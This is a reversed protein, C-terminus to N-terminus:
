VTPACNFCVKQKKDTFEPRGLSNLDVRTICSECFVHGCLRCHNRKRFVKNFPRQCNHCASASKNPVWFQMETQGFMEEDDLFASGGFVESQVSVTDSSLHGSVKKVKAVTGMGSPIRESEEEEEIDRTFATKDYRLYLSHWVGIVKLSCVPLVPRSTECYEKNLGSSNEVLADLFAWISVSSEKLRNEIRERECNFYFTGFWGSHMYDVLCRLYFENFEFATPFQHIMQFVCDIFQLFVPSREDPRLMHGLRDHFKHGFALWDKEIVMKFGKVTRAFPDIMIQALGCLQATRDWGDSCHCVIAYGRLVYRAMTTGAVLVTRIHRLWSSQDLASLWQLDDCSADTCIKRLADISDRMAHINEIDMFFLRSNRYSDLSETGKGRFRNGGAAIRSRADIIILESTTTQRIAELLKQDDESSKGSLGLLPQSCRTMGGGTDSHYYSLSSLRGRSRYTATKAITEDDISHPFYLSKPYTSCMEYKENLVTRKWVKECKQRHFESDLSFDWGYLSSSTTTTKLYETSTPRTILMNQLIHIRNTICKSLYKPKAKSRSTFIVDIGIFNHTLIRVVTSTSGKVLTKNDLVTLSLINGIPISVHFDRPSLVQDKSTNMQKMSTSQSSSEESDNRSKSTMSIQSEIVHKQSVLLLRYQSMCFVGVTNFGGMSLGVNPVRVELIESDGPFDRIETREADPSSFLVPLGYGLHQILHKFEKQVNCTTENTGLTPSLIEVTLNGKETWLAHQEGEKQYVPLYGTYKGQDLLYAPFVAFGIPNQTRSIVEVLEIEIYFDNLPSFDEIVFEIGIEPSGNNLFPDSNELKRRGSGGVVNIIISSSVMKSEFLDRAGLVTIFVQHHKVIAQKSSDDKSGGRIAISGSKVPDRKLSVDASISRKRLHGSKNGSTKPPIDNM